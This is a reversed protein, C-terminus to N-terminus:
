LAEECFERLADAFAQSSTPADTVSITRAQPFAAAADEFGEETSM